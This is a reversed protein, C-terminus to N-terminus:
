DDDEFEDDDIENIIRYSYWLSLSHTLQLMDMLGYPRLANQHGLSYDAFIYDMFLIKNEHTSQSDPTYIIKLHSFATM